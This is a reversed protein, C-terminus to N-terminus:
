VIGYIQHGLIIIESYLLSVPSLPDICPANIHIKSDIITASIKFSTEVRWAHRAAPSFMGAEGGYGGLRINRYIDLTREGKGAIDL